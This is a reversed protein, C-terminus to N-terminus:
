VQRPENVFKWEALISDLKVPVYKDDEICMLRHTKKSWWGPRDAVPLNHWHGHINLMVGAPLVEVPKHTFLVGNNTFSDCAFDFGNRMYWGCSKKDHNGMVLIKRCPVEDLYTKLMPYQYFIVDGLHILVDQKALCQKWGRRILLDFNAPRGCSDVMAEHHFHTDTTVWTISPRPM